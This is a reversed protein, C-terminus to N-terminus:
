EVCVKKSWVGEESICQVMFVGTSLKGLDFEEHHTGAQTKPLSIARIIKGNLDLIQLSIKQPEQLTFDVALKKKAPSYANFSGTKENKVTTTTLAEYEMSALIFPGIPKGDVSSNTVAESMYYSFSGDRNTSGGLGSVQCDNNIIVTDGRTTVFTNLIGEYAKKAAPLYSNSIYGLRISKLLAYTIM